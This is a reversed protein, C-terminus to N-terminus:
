VSLLKQGEILSSVAVILTEKDVPKALHTQFGAELAELRDKNSAYATLAIAPTLGGNEAGLARVKRIFDYGNEDPMGIDSILVDFRETKLIELAESVSTATRVRAGSQELLFAVFELSDRDDEILLVSCDNLPLPTKNEISLNQATEESFDNESDPFPSEIKLNLPLDVIFTSGKGIGESEASVSGGHIEVLHRVIALGLGLGGHMRTSSGDAQRFRDFVYPLFEPEIGQGTDSVSVRVHTMLKEAEIKVAGGPTTFKIANSLLNWFVQQLRDADGKITRIREDYKFNIKINKLDASIRVADIAAEIVSNLEIPEVTVRLKGTIIRSVDLIDNILQSQNRANRQIVQIAYKITEEDLSNNSLMQSWGLIATLPTRLEHSLTALFEDKIRNAEEAKLRAAQERELIMEREKEIEKRETIDEHMLVVERVVGQEDKVPYIFAEVWRPQNLFEGRDPYYPVAPIETPTGEFAKKLYEMVGNAILQEDELINYDPLDALTVGWLKEWAANTLITRGDPSFVQTSIPSQEVLKRFRKESIKLSKEAEKRETIDLTVGRMGIPKGAEDTIVISHSEVWIERGDKRIWRFTNTDAGGKAFHESSRRAAAEKDDPHVITLWFNPQSLWEEVTYGLMTEVYDSVFNIQQSATDPQGWAEWVVGPVSSVMDALRKRQLEIESNLKARELESKKHATMLWSITLGVCFILTSRIIGEFSFDIAFQPPFFFFNVVAVSLISALIGSGRGFLWASFAISVFFLLAPISHFISWFFFTFLLAAGVFILVALFSPLLRNIIKM